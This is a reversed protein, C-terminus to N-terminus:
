MYYSKILEGLSIITECVIMIILVNRIRRNRTGKDEDMTHEGFLKIIKLTAAPPILVQVAFILDKLSNM